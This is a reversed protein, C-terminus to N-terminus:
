PAPWHRSTGTSKRGNPTWIPDATGGRSARGSLVPPRQRTLTVSYRWVSVYAPIGPFSLAPSWTNRRLLGAPAWGVGPRKAGKRRRQDEKPPAPQCIPCRRSLAPGATAREGAAMLVQQHM